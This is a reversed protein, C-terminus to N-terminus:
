AGGGREDSGGLAMPSTDNAPSGVADVAGLMAYWTARCALETVLPVPRDRLAANIAGQPPMGWRYRSVAGHLVLALTDLMGAMTIMPERPTAPTRDQAPSM